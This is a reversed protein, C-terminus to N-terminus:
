GHNISEDFACLCGPDIKNMKMAADRFYQAAPSTAKKGVPEL